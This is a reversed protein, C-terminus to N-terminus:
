VDWSNEVILLPLVPCLSPRIKSAFMKWRAPQGGLNNRDRTKQFSYQLVSVRSIMIHVYTTCTFMCVRERPRSASPPLFLSVYLPAVHRVRTKALRYHVMTFCGAGVGGRRMASERRRPMGFTRPLPNKANWRGGSSARSIATGNPPSEAM